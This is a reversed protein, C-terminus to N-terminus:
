IKIVLLKVVVEREGASLLAGAAPPFRRHARPWAPPSCWGTRSGRWRSTGALEPTPRLGETSAPLGPCCAGLAWCRRCRGPQLALLLLPEGERWLWSAFGGQRKQVGPESVNSHGIRRDRSIKGGLERGNESRCEWLFTVFPNLHIQVNATRLVWLVGNGMCLGQVVWM